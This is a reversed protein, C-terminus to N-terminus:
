MQLWKPKTLTKSENIRTMMDFVNYKCRGNQEFCFNHWILLIVFDMANTKVLWLHLILFNM